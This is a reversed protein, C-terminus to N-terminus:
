QNKQKRRRLCFVSMAFLWFISQESSVYSCKSSGSDDNGCGKSPPEIESGPENSTSGANAEGPTPTLNTLFDVANINMDGGDPSRGLSLGSDPLIAATLDGEDGEFIEEEDSAEAGEKGYLVSDQLTGPCDLIRVGDFGTSANGLSLTGDITVDRFEVPVDEEAILWIEGAPIETEAPFRFKSGWSSAGTQIEWDDLRVSEDSNNILEIWELGGDTGDPNPFLENIKISFDGADCMIEPNAAGPTNVQAIVFDLASDNSDIGNQRRAHSQGASSKPAVSSAIFGDDDLWEDTNEALGNDDSPGYIVTDAVGPGCHLLRLGDANSSAAGMSLDDEIPVVIDAEAVNEGGIVIYGGASIWIEEEIIYQDSYSSTGWQLSWGQLNIDESGTNFLEVWENTDDESSTESDPNSMFENIKIDGEGPCSQVSDNAMWPSTFNLSLFDVGNDNTDEGNPVRGISIGDGPKPAFSGVLVGEEDTWDDENVTGYIVVDIINNECDVLQLGDANSTANGLSIDFIADAAMGLELDSLEGGVVFYGNAPIISGVEFSGFTSPSQTGGKLMWGSIDIDESTTNLLEVWERGAPDSDSGSPNALFENIVVGVSSICSSSANPAGPTESTAEIFDSASNTDACDVRRMLGVGSVDPSFPGASSGNDDLFSSNNPTGYLLTDYIILGSSDVLRIGSTSSSSNPLNPSFTSPDGLGPGVALYGLGSVLSGPMFTWSETWGNTSTVEIMWGSVDADDQSNNCLEIWELDGDSGHPDYLVENILLEANANMVLFMLNM